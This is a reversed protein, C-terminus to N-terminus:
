LCQIKVQNGSTLIIKWRSVSRASGTAGNIAPQPLYFNNVQVIV